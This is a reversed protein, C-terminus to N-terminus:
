SARASGLGGVVVWGAPSGLIDALGGVSGWSCSVYVSAPAWTTCSAASWESPCDSCCGVQWMTDLLSGFANALEGKMGLPNNKNVQSKYRGHLLQRLLPVTHALCQISSNM